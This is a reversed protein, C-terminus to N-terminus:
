ADFRTAWTPLVLTTIREDYGIWKGAALADRYRAYAEDMLRKGAMIASRDLDYVAVAHPEESEVCIMAFFEPTENFVAEHANHYQAGQLHYQFNAASKRFEQPSADKTTKVDLIGGFNIADLRAKCPVDYQGDRWFLSVETYAGRLLRRAAPSARIAAICKAAAAHEAPALVIKGAHEACFAAFEAKGANSRKNFTPSLVVRSVYRDPELVGCHVATGFEMTETPESPQDRMLKYHMPSRLIKKAGSASIAEIAHYTTEPMRYYVGDYIPPDDIPGVVEAIAESM